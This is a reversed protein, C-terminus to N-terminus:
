FFLYFEGSRGTRWLICTEFDEALDTTKLGESHSSNLKNTNPDTNLLVHLYLCSTNGREIEM